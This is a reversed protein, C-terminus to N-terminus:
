YILYKARVCKFADLQPQWSARIEEESKGAVIDKRLQGTGALKEFYPIFFPKTGTYSKYAAMLWDLRLRGGAKVEAYEGRLDMGYCKKGLCKPSKSMGPISRPTYVYGMGKLDPHGFVQFPTMTGRGENAVTGEFLCTSPYLMVSVSDPLNPSPSRPLGVAM